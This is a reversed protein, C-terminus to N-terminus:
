IHILSLAWTTVSRTGSRCFALVPGDAQAVAAHFADLQSASAAGVIPIHVYALGADQAAQAMQDATPQGPAERDPRNNIVLRYGLAAVEAMEQPQLQPAVAFDDTVPRIDAM